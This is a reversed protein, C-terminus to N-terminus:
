RIVSMTTNGNWHGTFTRDGRRTVVTYQYPRYRVGALGCSVVKRRSGILEDGVQLDRVAVNVRM